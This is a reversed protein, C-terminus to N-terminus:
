PERNLRQWPCNIGDADLLVHEGHRAKMLAQCYRYGSLKEAKQPLNDNNFFFKVGVPSSDMGLLEQLRTGREKLNNM